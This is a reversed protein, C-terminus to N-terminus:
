IKKLVVRRNLAFIGPFIKVLLNDIKDIINLFFFNMKIHPANVGGGGSNLFVLFENLENRIIKFKNNFIEGVKKKGFLIQSTANNQYWFNKKHINKINNDWGEHNCIFLFFKFFFSIEPDNIIIIGKKKLMKHANNIAVYPNKSHHLSHNFIVVDFKNKFKKKIFTDNFNYKYDIFSNKKIDTTIIKYNLIMKILGSGSGLEIVKTKKSIYKKMWFFRKQLNFRYNSNSLYKQLINKTSIRKIIM